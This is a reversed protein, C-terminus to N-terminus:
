SGAQRRSLWMALLGVAIVLLMALWLANRASRENDKPGAGVPPLEARPELVAGETEAEPSEALARIETGAEVAAEETAETAEEAAYYGLEGSGVAVREEAAPRAAAQASRRSFPDRRMGPGRRVAPAEKPAEAEATAEFANEGAAAVEARGASTSSAEGWGFLACGGLMSVLLLAALCAGLRSVSRKQMRM